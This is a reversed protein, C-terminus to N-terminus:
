NLNKIRPEVYRKQSGDRLKSGFLESTGLYIEADTLGQREQLIEILKTAKYTAPYEHQMAAM